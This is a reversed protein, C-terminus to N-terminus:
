ARARQTGGRKAMALVLCLGLLWWPGVVGGGGGGAAVPQVTVTRTITASANGARDTVSFSVVYTGVLSTNVANDVVIASTLDGSVDDVAVAGQDVYVSNASVSVAAPGILQIVPATVDGLGFRGAGNNRRVEVGLANTGALILDPMGDADLDVLEAATADARLLSEAMLELGNQSTGLYLQHTASTNLALVDAYGDGNVDGTLLKSTEAAGFGLLLAFSGDLGGRLVVNEPNELDAADRALLLDLAGDRDMDAAALGTLSGLATHTAVLAYAGGTSHEFLAIAGPEDLLVALEARADGAIFDGAVLDRAPRSDIVTLPTFPGLIATGQAGTVALEPVGDLDADLTVAAWASFAPLEPGAAFSQAGSNLFVRGNMGNRSLVAIDLLGDGNWDLLALADGASTGPPSIPPTSFRASGLNYYVNVRDRVTAVDPAGDGDLDGVAVAVAPEVLRQAVVEALSGALSLSRVAANNSAAADDTELSVIATQDGPAQQSSSVVIETAANPPLPAIECQLRTLFPGADVVSCGPPATLTVPASAAYWDGLLVAAESTSGSLNTIQLTWRPAAGLTAPDPQVDIAVSLDYRRPVIELSFSIVASAGSGDTATVEVEYPVASEDLSTPTGSLQGLDPDLQLSGSPPLGSATFRLSDGADPDAFSLSVDLAYPEGEVARQAPIPQVVTPADNAATVSIQLSFLNSDLQGDNVWVGVGLTGNFDRAPVVSSGVLQYNDGAALRLSFDEPYRSDPDAVVLDQLEIQLAQDEPTSLARQGTIVPAVAAAVVSIIVEAESTSTGDFVRYRFVDSNNGSGNHRYLFTGDPNLTVTGRRPARSLIATLPDREFDFDNALVSSQGSDLVSVTGGRAVTANDDVAFPRFGSAESSAPRLVAILVALTPM